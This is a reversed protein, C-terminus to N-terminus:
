IGGKKSACEDLDRESFKIIHNVSINYLIMKPIEIVSKQFFHFKKRSSQDWYPVKESM